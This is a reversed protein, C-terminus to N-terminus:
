RRGPQASRTTPSLDRIEDIAPTGRYYGRVGRCEVLPHRREPSSLGPASTRSAPDDVVIANSIEDLLFADPQSLRFVLTTLATPADNIATSTSSPLRAARQRQVCSRRRRNRATLRSATTSIARGAPAAAAPHPRRRAMGLRHGAASRGATGTSRRAANGRILSSRSRRLGGRAAARTVRSASADLSRETAAAAGACGSACLQAGPPRGGLLRTRRWTAPMAGAGDSAWAPGTRAVHGCEHSRRHTPGPQSASLRGVPM